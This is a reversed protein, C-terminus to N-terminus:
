TLNAQISSDINNQPILCGRSTCERIVNLWPLPHPPAVDSWSLPGTWSWTLELSCLIKSAQYTWETSTKPLKLTWKSSCIRFFKWKFYVQSSRLPSLNLYFIEKILSRRSERRSLLTLYLWVFSRAIRLTLKKRLLTNTVLLLSQTLFKSGNLSNLISETLDLLRKCIRSFLMRMTMSKPGM